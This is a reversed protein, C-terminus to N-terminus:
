MEWTREKYKLYQTITWNTSTRGRLTCVFANVLSHEVREVLGSLSPPYHDNALEIVMNNQRDDWM